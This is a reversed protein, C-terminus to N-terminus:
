RSVDKKRELIAPRVRGPDRPREAKILKDGTPQDAPGVLQLSRVLHKQHGVLWRTVWWSTPLVPKPRNTSDVEEAKTHPTQLMTIKRTKFVARKMNHHRDM